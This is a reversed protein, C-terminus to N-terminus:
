TSHLSSPLGRLRSENEIIFAMEQVAKDLVDNVIWYTFSERFAMEQPANQLRIRISEESDAGRQRLRTELVSLDKVSVFIGVSEQVKRFVELAGHVDIDLVMRRGRAVAEMVPAAPTGYLRTHVEKWELFEDNDVMELFREESVFYYHIGNVESDRPARTTCSISYLMDPFLPRIREILTSKGAGSPAAIVFLMGNGM